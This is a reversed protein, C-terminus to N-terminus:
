VLAEGAFVVGLHVVDPRDAEAPATIQDAAVRAHVAHTLTAAIGGAGLRERHAGVPRAEPTREGLVACLGVIAAALEAAVGLALGLAHGPVRARELHLGWPRPAALAGRGLSVGPAVNSGRVSAHTALAEAPDVGRAAAVLRDAVTCLAHLADDIVVAGGLVGNTVEREFCAKLADDVGVAGILVVLADVGDAFVAVRVGEEATVPATRGGEALVVVAALAFLVHVAAAHGSVLGEVAAHVVAGATGAVGEVIAAAPEIRGGAPGVKLAPRAAVIGVAVWRAGIPGNEAARISAASATVGPIV